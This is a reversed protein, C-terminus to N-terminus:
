ENAAEQAWVALARKLLKYRSQLQANEHRLRILEAREQDDLPAISGHPSRMNGTPQPYLLATGFDELALSFARSFHIRYRESIGGSDKEWRRIMVGLCENDPLNDGGKRAAERLQRRM